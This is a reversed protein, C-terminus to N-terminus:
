LGQGPNAKWFGPFFDERLHGIMPEAQARERLWWFNGTLGPLDFHLRWFGWAFLGLCIKCSVFASGLVVGVLVGLFFGLFGGSFFDLVGGPSFCFFSSVGM